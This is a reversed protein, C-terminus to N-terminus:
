FRYFLYIGAASSSAFSFTSVSYDQLTTVVGTNQNLARTLNKQFSYLATIRAETAVYFNKSIILRVGLFPALGLGYTDTSNFQTEIGNQYTTTKNFSISPRVDAGGYWMWRASITRQWEKGVSPMFLYAYPITYPQTGSNNNGSNLSASFSLGYRLATNEGTQRKYMLNFPGSGSNLLGSFITTTNFGIDNKLPQNEQAPSTYVVISVLVFVGFYKIM